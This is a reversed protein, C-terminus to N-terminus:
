AGENLVREVLKGRDFLPENERYQYFKKGNVMIIPAHWTGRLLCYFLNDLWPKVEFAVNKNKLEDAMIDQLIGTTLECEDCSTKIHFPGFTGAWKFQTVIVPQKKENGAMIAEKNMLITWGSEDDGAEFIFVYNFGNEISIKKFIIVHWLLDLIGKYRCYNKMKLYNGPAGSKM